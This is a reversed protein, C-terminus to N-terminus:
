TFICLVSPTPLLCMVGHSPMSYTQWRYRLNIDVRSEALPHRERAEPRASLCGGSFNRPKLCVGLFLPVEKFIVNERGHGPSLRANDLDHELWGFFHMQKFGERKGKAKRDKGGDM